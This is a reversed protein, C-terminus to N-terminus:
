NLSHFYIMESHMRADPYGRMASIFNGSLIWVNGKPSVTVLLFLLCVFPLGISNWLFNM